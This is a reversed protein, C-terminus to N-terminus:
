PRLALWVLAEPATVIPLPVANRPMLVSREACDHCNPVMLMAVPVVLTSKWPCPHFAAGSTRVRPLPAVAPAGTIEKTEPVPVTSMLAMPASVILSLVAVKPLVPEPWFMRKTAVAPEVRVTVAASPMPLPVLMALARTSFPPLRAIPLVVARLPATVTSDPPLSVALWADPSVPAPASVKSCPEMMLMVLTVPKLPACAVAAVTLAPVM